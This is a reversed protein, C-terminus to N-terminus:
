GELLWRPSPRPPPFSLSLCRLMVVKPPPPLLATAAAAAFRGARIRVAVPSMM